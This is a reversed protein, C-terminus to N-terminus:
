RLLLLLMGVLVVGCLMLRQREGHDVPVHHPPVRELHGVPCDYIGGPRRAGPREVLRGTVDTAARATAPSVGMSARSPDSGSSVLISLVRVTTTSPELAVGTEVRATWPRLWLVFHVVPTQVMRMMMVVVLLLLLRVVVVRPVLSLVVPLRAEVLAHRTAPAHGLRVVASEGTIEAVVPGSFSGVVVADLVRVWLRKRIRTLLLLRDAEVVHARSAPSTGGHVHTSPVGEVLVGPFEPFGAEWVESSAGRVALSASGLVLKLVLLGVALAGHRVVAAAVVRGVGARHGHEVDARVTDTSAALAARLVELAEVARVEPTPPPVLVDGKALIDGGVLTPAAARAAHAGDRLAALRLPRERACIWVVGAEGPAALALGWPAGADVPLDAAQIGAVRGSAPLVGDPVTPLVRVRQAALTPLVRYAVAPLVGLPAAGAGSPAIVGGPVNHGAVALDSLGHRYLGGEREGVGVRCVRLLLLM